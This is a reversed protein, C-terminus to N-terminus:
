STIPMVSLLIQHEVTYEKNISSVIPAWHTETKLSLGSNIQGYLNLSPLPEHVDNFLKVQIHFVPTIGRKILCKLSFLACLLKLNGMFSMDMQQKQWKIYKVKRETVGSKKYQLCRKYLVGLIM